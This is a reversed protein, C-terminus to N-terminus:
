ILCDLVNSVVTRGGGGGELKSNTAIFSSCAYHFFFCVCMELFYEAVEFHMVITTDQFLFVVEAFRSIM